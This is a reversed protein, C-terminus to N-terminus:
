VNKLENIDVSYCNNLLYLLIRKITNIHNDTKNYNEFVFDMLVKFRENTHLKEPVVKCDTAFEKLNSYGFDTLAKGSDKVFKVIWNEFEKPSLLIIFHESGKLKVLELENGFSIKEEIEFGKLFPEIADNDSDVIGVSFAGKSRVAISKIVETKTKEKRILAKNQLLRGFFYSDAWCEVAIVRKM